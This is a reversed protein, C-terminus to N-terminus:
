RAVAAPGGLRCILQEVVIRARTPSSNAGKLALDTELLLRYLRGGRERGIRRLSSESQALRFPKVGAQELAVRLPLRRGAREAQEILRTAAAFARLSWSVQGMLAVPHEGGLLLQDLQALAAPADGALMADIMEWTTKTRWGGVLDHIMQTGVEGGPGVVAALKALEQELLGPEPGVIDVMLEADARDLRVQHRDKAWRTLWKLLRPAAPVKCEIPLGSQAVAKALRTNAPWSKVELVLVGRRSPAAVYDELKARHATVFEDAPAVIALRRDGGFLTVTSLEDLVDRLATMRGDFETCSLEAGEGSLLRQRITSLALRKLFPDDGFVAVVASMPESPASTLYDFVHVAAM